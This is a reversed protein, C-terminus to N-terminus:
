KVGTQKLLVARVPSAELEMFKLPPAVLFYNGESVSTLDLNELWCMGAKILEHHAALTKSNIHDVSPTDLGILKTGKSALYQVLEVSLYSYNNEFVEYRLSKATRFLVREVNAKDLKDKTAALSIEGQFPALDIVTAPGIFAALKMLGATGRLSDLSGKVHVPADAHTGVHPSMTLKTLNFCSDKGLTVTTEKSFPTDGPFCATKASIPISIDILEYDQM